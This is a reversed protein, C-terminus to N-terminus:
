LVEMYWSSFWWQLRRWRAMWALNSEIQCGSCPSCGEVDVQLRHINAFTHKRHGCDSKCESYSLFCERKPTLHFSASSDVVWSWEVNALNVLRAQECIFLMEEESSAIASINRDDSIKRTSRMLWAKTRELSDVIRKSTALSGVISAHLDEELNRGQMFGIEMKLVETNTEEEVLSKPWMQKRILCPVKIREEQRKM